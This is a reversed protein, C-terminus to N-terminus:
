EATIHEQETRLRQNEKHISHKEAQLHGTRELGYSILDKIVKTPEPVPLLEVM